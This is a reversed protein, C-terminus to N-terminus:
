EPGRQLLFCTELCFVHPVPKIESLRKHYITVSSGSTGIIVASRRRFDMGLKAELPDM